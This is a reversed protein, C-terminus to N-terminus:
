KRKAQTKAPAFVPIGSAGEQISKRGSEVVKRTEIDNMEDVIDLLEMVDEYPLIVNTPAGHDTVVLPGSQRLLSSLKEKLERIGVHPAKLLSIAISM